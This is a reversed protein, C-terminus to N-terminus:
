VKESLFKMFFFNCIMTIPTVCIKAFVWAFKVVFPESCGSFANGAFNVLLSAGLIMFIQYCIYLLYKQWLTLRKLNVNFTKRISVFFVFTVGCLSSIINCVDFVYVTTVIGARNSVFHLINYITFDILWGIGSIGFFKLAQIFLAWLKKM